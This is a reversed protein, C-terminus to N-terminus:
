HIKQKNGDAEDVILLVKKDWLVKWINEEKQSPLQAVNARAATESPLLKGRAVFLSNWFTFTKENCCVSPLLKGM